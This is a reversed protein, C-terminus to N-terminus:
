MDDYRRHGAISRAIGYIMMMFCSKKWPVLNIFGLQEIDEKPEHENEFICFLCIIVRNPAVHCDPPLSQLLEILKGVAIIHNLDGNNFILM